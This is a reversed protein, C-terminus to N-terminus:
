IYIYCFQGNNGGFQDHTELLKVPPGLWELDVVIDKPDTARRHHHMPAGGSAFPVANLRNEPDQMQWVWWLRDLSGHHFYFVPDGPSTNPDGAYM